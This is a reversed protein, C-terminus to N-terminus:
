TLLISTCIFEHVKICVSNVGYLLLMNYCNLIDILIESVLLGLLRALTLIVTVYYFFVRKNLM